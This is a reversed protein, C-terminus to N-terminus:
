LDNLQKQRGAESGTARKKRRLPARTGYALPSAGRRSTVCWIRLAGYCQLYYQFDSSRLSLQLSAM